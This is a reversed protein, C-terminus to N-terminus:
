GLLAEPLVPPARGPLVRPGPLAPLGAWQAPLLLHGLSAGQGEGRGCGEEGLGRGRIVVVSGM